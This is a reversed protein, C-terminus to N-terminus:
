IQPTFNSFTVALILGKNTNIKRKGFSYEVDCQAQRLATKLRRCAVMVYKIFM